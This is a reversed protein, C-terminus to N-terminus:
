RCSYSTCRKCWRSRFWQYCTFVIYMKMELLVIIIEKAVWSLSNAWAISVVISWWVSNYLLLPILPRYNKWIDPSDTSHYTDSIGCSCRSKASIYVKVGWAQPGWPKPARRYWCFGKCGHYWQEMDRRLTTYSIFTGSRHTGYNMYPVRWKYGWVRSKCTLSYLFRPLHYKTKGSAVHPITTAWGSASTCHQVFWLWYM